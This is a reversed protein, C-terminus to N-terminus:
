QHSSDSIKMWCNNNVNKKFCIYHGKSNINKTNINPLYQIVSKLIFSYSSLKINNEDIVNIRTKFRITKNNMNIQTPIKILLYKSVLNIRVNQIQNIKKCKSCKNKIKM